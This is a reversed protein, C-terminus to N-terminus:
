FSYQNYAKKIEELGEPDWTVPVPKFPNIDYGHIRLHKGHFITFTPAGIELSIKDDKFHAPTTEGDEKFLMHPHFSAKGNPHKKILCQIGFLWQGDIEGNWTLLDATGEHINEQIKYNRFVIPKTEM